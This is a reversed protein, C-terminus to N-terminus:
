RLDAVRRGEDGHGRHRLFRGVGAPWVTPAAVARPRVVAREWRGGTRTRCHRPRYGAELVRVKKKEALAAVAERPNKTEECTLKADRVDETIQENWTAGEAGVRADEGAREEAETRREAVAAVDTTAHGGLGTVMEELAVRQARKAAIEAERAAVRTCVRAVDLAPAAGGGVPAQCPGGRGRPPGGGRAAWRVM